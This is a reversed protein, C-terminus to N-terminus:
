RDPRYETCTPILRIIRNPDIMRIAPIPTDRSSPSNPSVLAISNKPNQVKTPIPLPMTIGLAVAPMNDTRGCRAPVADPSPPAMRIPPPAANDTKAARRSTAPGPANGNCAIMNPLAMQALADIRNMM